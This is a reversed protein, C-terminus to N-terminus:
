FSLKLHNALKVDESTYHEKVWNEVFAILEPGLTVLNEVDTIKKLIAKYDVVFDDHCTKHSIYGPYNTIKMYDEETDFHFSVYTQLDILAELFSEKSNVFRDLENVIKFLEQHQEDIVSIGTKLDDGFIITM